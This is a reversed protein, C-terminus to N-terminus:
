KRLIQYILKPSCGAEYLLEAQHAVDPITILRLALEPDIHLALLRLYRCALVEEEPTLLRDPEPASKPEPNKAPRGLM